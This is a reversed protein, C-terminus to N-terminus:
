KSGEEIRLRRNQKAWSARAVDEGGYVAVLNQRAEHPLNDFSPPVILRIQQGETKFLDTVAEANDIFIPASIGYHQCLTNIIDLGVNIRAAHNLGKEYPVGNYLTDCTEKLGGNIQEEFLRFRAYRFKSDIKSQLLNVKTRTFEEMLFLQAELGEYEAALAKEQAELDAIRKGQRRVQDFKALETELFSLKQRLEGIKGRVAQAEESVSANLREIDQRITEAESELRQFEPDDSPNQLGARLREITSEVKAAEDGLSKRREDAREIEAQMRSNDAELREAEDKAALGRKRISELREAKSRNFAALAKDHAETRQDEPLTQGCAPCHDDGKHAFEEANVSALQQRLHAREQDLDAIVQENRRIRHRYDDAARLLSDSERNLETLRERQKAITELLDTQLSAKIQLQRNEIERLRREKVAIEGGSQIRILEQEKAAIQARFTEIDEQLLEESLDSVDPMGRQAESIRVPLEKLEENITKMKSKVVALHKELERDALIEPLRELAKNAHIIEADTIDGAIELLIRRREEKKLQENFYTPSTLLKFLDEQLLADVEAKYEKEKVPVGDVYYDTTHGEFTDHASGRKKTWKEAFVRRFSKRRGDVILVVEVEHELKHQRVKGTPDLEKIEFNTRNESDKGFFTWTFADFLTTKGTGNDGYVDVDAGDATLTFDRFGKFNRLTMRDLVISNM